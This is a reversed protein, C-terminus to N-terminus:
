TSTVSYNTVLSRLPPLNTSSNASVM